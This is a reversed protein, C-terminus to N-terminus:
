VKVRRDAKSAWSNILGDIDLQPVLDKNLAICLLPGRTQKPDAKSRLESCVRNMASFSREATATTTAIANKLNILKMLNACRKESIPLGLRFDIKARSLELKLASRNIDLCDFHEVLYGLTDIDLYCPHMWVM